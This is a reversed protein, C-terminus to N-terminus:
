TNKYYGKTHKLNMIYQRFLNEKKREESSLNKAISKSIYNEKIKNRNDAKATVESEFKSSVIQNKNSSPDSTLNSGNQKQLM